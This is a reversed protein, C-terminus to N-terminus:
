LALQKERTRQAELDAPSPEAKSSRRAGVVPKGEGEGEAAGEQGQLPAGNLVRPNLAFAGRPILSAALIVACGVSFQVGGVQRLSTTISGNAVFDDDIVGGLVSSLVANLVVYSSFLFAM